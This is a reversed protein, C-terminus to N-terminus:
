DRLSPLFNIGKSGGLLPVGKPIKSFRHRLLEVQGLQTARLIMIDHRVLGCNIFKAAHDAPIDSVPRAREVIKELSSVEERTLRVPPM